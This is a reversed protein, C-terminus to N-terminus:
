SATTTIKRAYDYAFHTRAGHHGWRIWRSAYNMYQEISKGPTKMQHEIMKWDSEAVLYSLQTELTSPDKGIKRAHNGLGHYRPSDTWQLIGVGGSRCGYYGTRAGGECIEPVFGSEQKINGMVTALAYKDKVGQDQLFALTQQEATSCGNCILRIVKPKPPEIERIAIEPPAKPEAIAEAIPPEPATLQPFDPLLSPLSFTLLFPLVASTFSLMLFFLIRCGFLSLLPEKKESPMRRPVNSKLHLTLM